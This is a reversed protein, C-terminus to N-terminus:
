KIKGAKQLRDVTAAEYYSVGLTKALVTLRSHEADRRHEERTKERDGMILVEVPGLCGEYPDRQSEFEVSINTWGAIEAKEVQEWIKVFLDELDDKNYYPSLVMNEGFQANTKAAM